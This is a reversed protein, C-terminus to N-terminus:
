AAGAVEEITVKVGLGELREVLRERQREIQQRDVYDSGLEAYAVRRSLLHYVIVRMTHAVTVVTKSHCANVLIVTLLGALINCVLKWYVEMSKIAVHTCGVSSLWDGLQLLEDTMPAFTRIEKRGKTVLCAVVPKAHVALGGCCEYVVEM